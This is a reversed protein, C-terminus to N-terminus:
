DKAAEMFELVVGDPDRTYVARWGARYGEPKTPAPSTMAKFGAKEVANIVGDINEVMFAIHLFGPDCPRLTSNAGHPNLYHLLEIEHGPAKVYAIEMQVGAVGTVSEFFSGGHSKKETVDFGLVDRYFALSRDIDSVTIGTHSTKRVRFDTM